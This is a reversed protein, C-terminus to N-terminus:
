EIDTGTPCVKPGSVANQEARKTVYGPKLYCKGDSHLKWVNCLVHEQCKAQCEEATAMATPSFSAINDGDYSINNEFCDTNGTAAPCVKPGSIINYQQNYTKTVPRTKLYCTFKGETTRGDDTEGYHKWFDCEAHDQCKAQCEEATATEVPM